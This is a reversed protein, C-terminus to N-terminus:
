TTPISSDRKRQCSQAHRAEALEKKAKAIDKQAEKEGKAEMEHIEDELTKKPRSLRFKKGMGPGISRGVPQKWHTRRGPAPGQTSMRATTLTKRPAKGGTSMRATQRTRGGGGEKTTSRTTAVM